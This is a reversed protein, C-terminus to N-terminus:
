NKQNWVIITQRVAEPKGPIQVMRSVQFQENPKWSLQEIASSDNSYSFFKRIFIRKLTSADEKLIVDINQIELEKNIASYNLTYTKTTQDFFVTEKYLKKLSPDNIDPTLFPQAFHSFQQSSISSSDVNNNFITKKYIYFPTKLVDNVQNQVFQSVQFFQTTDKDTVKEATIPKQKCSVFLFCLCLLKVKRM